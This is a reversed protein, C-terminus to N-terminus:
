RQWNQIFRVDINQPSPCTLSLERTIVDHALSVISFMTTEWSYLGNWRSHRWGTYSECGAINLYGQLPTLISTTSTTQIPLGIIGEWQRQRSLPSCQHFTM